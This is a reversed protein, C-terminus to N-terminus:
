KVVAFHMPILLKRVELQKGTKLFFTLRGLVTHVGGSIGLTVM